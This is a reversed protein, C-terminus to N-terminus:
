RLKLGFFTAPNVFGGPVRVALHLHPGTTRGTHGARGIQQGREIVDGEAVTAASLHFYASAIGSGHAVVVVKGALYTDRVLTVTGANIASVRSGERAFVDFGLHQSRHGDNFTRWEGFSSTIEGRPRVFPKTFQRDGESRMARVMAKNDETIQEREAAPPNALEEEVVVDTEAFIAPTITVKREIDGVKVTVPKDSGAVDTAFLAQYGGNTRFFQLSEGNATGSPARDVGTVTVLVADGPHVTKPALAVVPDASALATMALLCVLSKM